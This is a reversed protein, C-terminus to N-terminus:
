YTVGYHSAIVDTTECGWGARDAVRVLDDGTDCPGSGSGCERHLALVKRALPDDIANLRRMASAWRAVSTRSEEVEHVVDMHWLDSAEEDYEYRTM